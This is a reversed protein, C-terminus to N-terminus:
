VDLEVEVLMMSDVEVLINSVVEVLSQFMVAVAVDVFHNFEVEVLSKVVFTVNVRAAEVDYV